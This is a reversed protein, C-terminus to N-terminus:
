TDTTQEGGGEFDIRVNFAINIRQKDSPNRHAEHLLYSPFILLLGDVPEVTFSQGFPLGLTVHQNLYPVSYFEIAGTDMGQIYYVGSWHWKAHSHIINRSGPENVNTWYEFEFRDDQMEDLPACSTGLSVYHRHIIKLKRIVFDRLQPWNEYNRHGRWCGPNNGSLVDPEAEHHARIEQLLDANLTEHDPVMSWWFDTHLLAGRGMKPVDKYGKKQDRPNAEM